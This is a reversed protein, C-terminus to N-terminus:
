GADGPPDELSLAPAANLDLGAREGRQWRVWGAAAIMAANDTCFAPRPVYLVRGEAAAAEALLERLRSNAAVGGALAIRGAGVARAAALAKEALVGVVAEQFSAALDAVPLPGRAQLRRIENLAATKLGSFSFDFGEGRLARPFPFASPDGERALRDMEAGAPYPLGLVRGIKDIAEGAADDRTRGLRRYAGWAPVELLETHGGSAILCLFPPELEPHELRNAYLHGEIHNVAVLPLGSAYALAKAGAIGVLLAGVLGPGQTVAVADLDKLELGADDLAQRVVPLLAEVHRRSAIEPVVGGFRRHVEVQSAVVNSLLRTGGAVVAAATEDCSTEM